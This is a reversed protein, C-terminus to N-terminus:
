GLQSLEKKLIEIQEKIRKKRNNNDIKYKISYLEETFLENYNLQRLAYLIPYLGTKIKEGTKRVIIENHRHDAIDYLANMYEQELQETIKVINEM